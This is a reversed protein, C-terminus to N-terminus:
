RTKWFAWVPKPSPWARWRFALMPLPSRRMASSATSRRKHSNRTNPRHKKKVRATLADLEKTNSVTKELM